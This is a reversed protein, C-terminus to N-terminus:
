FFRRCDIWVNMSIKRKRDATASFEEVFTLEKQNSATSPNCSRTERFIWLNQHKSCSWLHEVAPKFFFSFFWSWWDNNCCNGGFSRTINLSRKRYTKESRHPFNVARRKIVSVRHNTRCSFHISELASLQYSIMIRKHLRYSDTWRKVLLMLTQSSKSDKWYVKSKIM